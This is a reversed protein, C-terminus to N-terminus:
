FFYPNNSCEYEISTDPGHGPYVKYDHPLTKILDVSRMMDLDSGSPLDTRGVSGKFLMDGSFVVKQEKENDSVCILCSGATHGPTEIIEFSLGILEKKNVNRIDTTEVDFLTKEGILYSGNGRSEKLLQVDKESMYVPKGNLVEAWEKVYKIHDFHAHTIFVAKVSGFDFEPIAKKIVEPSVSPDVVIAENGKITIYMNSGLPGYPITLVKM